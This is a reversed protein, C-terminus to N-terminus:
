AQCALKRRRRNRGIPLTPMFNEPGIGATPIFRMEPYVAHIAALFAPGGLSGAPFVKVVDPGLERAREVETLTAVGPFSPVQARRAAEVVTPNTSPAVAFAAGAAIAEELQVVTLVSGAGVLM